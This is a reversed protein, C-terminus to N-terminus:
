LIKEIEDLVRNVENPDKTCINEIDKSKLFQRKTKFLEYVNDGFGGCLNRRVHKHVDAYLASQTTPVNAEGNDARKFGHKMEYYDKQDQTLKKFAMFTTKKKAYHLLSLPMYNEIKRKNLIAFPINYKECTERVKVASPPVHGPYESDSDAVVFIRPPGITRGLLQNLRKEIEGFGGLHEYHWWAETQADQLRQRNFCSIMADLFSGDSESNEVLVYAPAELCRRAHAPILDSIGNDETTIILLKSHMNKPYYVTKTYCKGLIELNIDGSRSGIASKIWLSNAVTEFDEIDWCHRGDMFLDVIRDLVRFSRNDSLVDPAFRVKV